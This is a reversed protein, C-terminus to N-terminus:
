PGSGGGGVPATQINTVPGAPTGRAADLASENSAQPAKRDDVPRWSSGGSQMPSCRTALRGTRSKSRSRDPKSTLSAWTTGATRPHRRTSSSNNPVLAGKLYAGDTVAVRGEIRGDAWASLGCLSVVVMCCVSARGMDFGSTLVMPTGYTGRTVDEHCAVGSHAGMSRDAPDWLEADIGCVCRKNPISRRRNWRSCLSLSQVSERGTREASGSRRNAGRVRAVAPHRGPGGRRMRAAM